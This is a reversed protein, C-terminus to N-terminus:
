LEGKGRIASTCLFIVDREGKNWGKRKDSVSLDGERKQM